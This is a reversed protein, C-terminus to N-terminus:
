GTWLDRVKEYLQDQLTDKFRLSQEYREREKEAEKELAKQREQEMLQSMIAEYHRDKEKMADKEALQAAREKNMYGAKLKSELEKLETSCTCTNNYFVNNPASYITHNTIKLTSFKM